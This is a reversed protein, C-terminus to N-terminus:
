DKLIKGSPGGGALKSMPGYVRWFFAARKPM